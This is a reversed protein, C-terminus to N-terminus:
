KEWVFKYKSTYGLTKSLIFDAVITSNFKKIYAARGNQAIKKAIKNDKKYKNLKYGLDDLDNYFIMENKSFFDNYRTKKDIFTLLGNGMLQVIRDSSYYKIPEGRSLNIGMRSNSIANIFKDGWIPQINNMGYIDFNIKKNNKRLTNIIVERKDFKGKKLHGRHVGHSMAFFVDSQCNIEYNKLIEFSPDSPNPIFYSNDIKTSLVSPCSTLFTADMCNVKDLIRKNNKQYDPGKKGLPDLFWQCIRLKKNKEKIIQLTEETIADAHGLILCDTKFNNTNEIITNQLSNKGSIDLIKKNEHIIDRDSITLVNHGLRVFGNNLRRGTNYQLRGNFRRNFNTIHIIKLPNNKNFNFLNIHNIKISSKRINDIIKAVFSHTLSFNNYNKKQVSLLKKKDIILKNISSYLSKVTLNKLIIAESTTEPLGGKNSIIVASGRSSAELSTRGFPEEWRSCIVSISIKKLDELILKNDKFGLIKLNKHKFILKERPEDGYVKASWSPHKDLIKIITNGFIDYGKARNLKGVFSIIKMKEKFNIRTKSASQFCIATKNLLEEKNKFDIFYRERCWKSNFILKDVTNLLNIRELVTRSGDMSLPDNHFYLFLKKFFKKRIQNIYKPRNHVEILDSNLAEDSNIFNSVYQYNSSQLLNKDFKINKYNSSLYNKFDTSGYVKITKKYNSERTIDNVFLSVAGAAKHAFNEKYPLLISINM